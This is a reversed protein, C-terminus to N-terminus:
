DCYVINRVSMKKVFAFSFLCVSLLFDTGVVVQRVFSSHLVSFALEMPHVSSVRFLKVAKYM